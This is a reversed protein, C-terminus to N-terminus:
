RHVNGAAALTPWLSDEAIFLQAHLRGTWLIGNDFLYIFFLIFLCAALCQDHLHRPFAAM